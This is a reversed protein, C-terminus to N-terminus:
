GTPHGLCGQLLADVDEVTATGEDVIRAADNIMPHLLRSTVFGPTDRVVIARRNMAGLLAIVAAMTAQSSRPGRVVEVMKILYAPNMFHTGVLTEPRPLDTALEDIPIGSTNSVLPTGPQVVAATEALVKQKLRSEETVAEIVADVIGVDRISTAIRLNGSPQEAPLAGVMQAHRLQDPLRDRAHALLKENVDLLVVHMGHGVAMAAIGSGM